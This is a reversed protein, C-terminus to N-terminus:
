PVAPLFFAPYSDWRGGDWGQEVQGGFTLQAGRLLAADILEEFQRTNHELYCGLDEADHFPVVLRKFPPGTMVAELFEDRVYGTSVVHLAADKTWCLEADFFGGSGLLLVELDHIWPRAWIKPEGEIFGTWALRQLNPFARRLEDLPSRAASTSVTTVRPCPGEPPYGLNLVTHLSPRSNFFESQRELFGPSSEYKVNLIELAAWRPSDWAADFTKRDYGLSGAVLLGRRFRARTVIGKLEGILSKHHFRRLEFLRRRGAASLAGEAQRCQLAMFEGRLDGQEQLQDALVELARVDTSDITTM